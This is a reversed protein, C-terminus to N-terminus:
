LITIMPPPVGLADSYISERRRAPEESNKKGPAADKDDEEDLFSEDMYFDLCISERKAPPEKPSETNFGVLISDRKKRPTLEDDADLADEFKFDVLISQRKSPRSAPRYNATSEAETEVKEAAPGISEGFARTAVILHVAARVKDLNALTRLNSGYVVTRARLHSLKGIGSDEHYTRNDLHDQVPQRDTGVLKIFWRDPGDLQLPEAALHDATRQSVEVGDEIGHVVNYQYRRYMPGDVCSHLCIYSHLKPQRQLVVQLALYVWLYPLPPAAPNNWRDRVTSNETIVRDIYDTPVQGPGIKNFIDNMEQRWAQVVPNGPELAAM